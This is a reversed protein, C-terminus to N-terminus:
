FQSLIGKVAEPWPQALVQALRPNKEGSVLRRIEAIEMMVLWQQLAVTSCAKKEEVM